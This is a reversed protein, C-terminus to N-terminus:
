TISSRYGKREPGAIEGPETGKMFVSHTSLDFEIWECTLTPGDLMETVCLDKWYEIGNKVETSKLGLQEWDQILSDIFDLEMAGQHFLFKDHWLTKGFREIRESKFKEFGGPYVSDIKSIPIILDVFECLIAM